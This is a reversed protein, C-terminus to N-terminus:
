RPGGARWRGVVPARTATPRGGKAVQAGLALHPRDIGTKVDALRLKRIESLRLGCCRALRVIVLNLRTNLARPARRSLDALVTALERRSPIMSLDIQWLCLPIM